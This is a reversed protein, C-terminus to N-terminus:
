PFLKRIFELANKYALKELSSVDLRLEKQLFSLLREYCSADQYNRFFVEKGHRLASPLDAEYFFDAGLAIHHEGGQELWHAIHKPLFDESEGVVQHYLNLGVVGGRRFIERAIENPLNRPVSVIARANSHSAMVPIDLRHGEIYDIIGYALVDSAHSLDVAIQKQHLEELLYKGDEKLGVRTLAGGGFRNETNWTLSIYLPKAINKIIHDLRKMGEHLPESEECFGSANEIAMSIAIFPSQLNWQLSYHIFDKPYRLPLDQYIRIQKLGRQVSRSNTETFVALTQVKVHGQRLQPIACRAELDYPTRQQHGELYFLLDCHLDIIPFEM